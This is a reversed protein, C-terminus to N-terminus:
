FVADTLCCAGRDRVPKCAIDLRLKLHKVYAFQKSEKCHVTKVDFGRNPYIPLSSPKASDATTTDHVWRLLTTSTCYVRRISALLRFGIRLSSVRKIRPTIFDITAFKLVKSPRGGCVHEAASVTTVM